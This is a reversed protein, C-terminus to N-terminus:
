TTDVECGNRIRFARLVPGFEPSAAMSLCDFLSSRIRPPLSTSLFFDVICLENIRSTAPMDGKLNLRM